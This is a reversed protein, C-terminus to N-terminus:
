SVGKEKAMQAYIQISRDEYLGLKESLIALEEGDRMEEVAFTNRLTRGGLRAMSLNAREFTKRVQRYVSVPHLSSGDLNAFVLPGDLGMASRMSMWALVDAVFAKRLYTVHPYFTPHKGTASTNTDMFSRLSIELAGDIGTTTDIESIQLGIVEAVKLGAGLLMSMLARDRVVPWGAHPRNSRKETTNLPLAQMFAVLADEDLSESQRNRGVLQYHEQMRGFLLDAMPNPTRGLHQFVRELLRAYRYQIGSNLILRDSRTQTLFQYILPADVRDITVGHVVLFEAFRSFMATYVKASAKSLRLKRRTRRATDSFATSMIFAEFTLLPENRWSQLTSDTTM